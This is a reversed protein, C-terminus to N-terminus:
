WRDTPNLAKVVFSNAFACQCDGRLNAKNFSMSLTNRNTKTNKVLMESFLVGAIEPTEHPEFINFYNKM